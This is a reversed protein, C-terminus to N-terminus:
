PMNCCSQMIACCAAPPTAPSPPHRRAAERGAQAALELMGVGFSESGWPLQFDRTPYSCTSTVAWQVWWRQTVSMHRWHRRRGPVSDARSESLAPPVLSLPVRTVFADGASARVGRWGWHRGIMLTCGWAWARDLGRQWPGFPSGM